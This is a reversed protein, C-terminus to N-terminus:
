DVLDRIIADALLRGGATLVLRDAEVRARGAAAHRDAAARGAPSLEALPVGTVLRTRLLIREVRQTEPDLVERAAAPSEGAALRGAYAAPHKVNWWRV